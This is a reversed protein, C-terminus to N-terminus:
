TREHSMRGARFYLMAMNIIKAMNIIMATIVSGERVTPPPGRSSNEPHDGRIDSGAQGCHEAEVEDPGLRVVWACGLDEANRRGAPVEGSEENRPRSGDGLFAVLVVCLSFESEGLGGSPCVVVLRPVFRRRCAATM